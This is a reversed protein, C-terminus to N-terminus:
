RKSRRQTDWDYPRLEEPHSRLYALVRHRKQTGRGAHDDIEGLLDPMTEAIRGFASRWRAKVAPFTIGLEDALEQDTAGRLAALLMQQDSDRLHLVPERSAFLINGLHASVGEAFEPKMVHLVRGEQPFEAMRRYVISRDLHDRAAAHVTECLVRGIKYGAHWEVFRSAFLTQVETRQASNLLEDRWCSGYLILIDVGGNANAKAVEARSALTPRGAYVSAIVRSNIDPRPSALEADAFRRTLMVSAGFGILRHGKMAPSAELILSAFFPDRALRKWCEVAAKTGVLSSGLNRPQISLGAEIDDWSPTRSTLPM